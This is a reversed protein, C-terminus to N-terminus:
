ETWKSIFDLMKLIERQPDHWWNTSWIRYVKFGLQELQKQRYLDYAYAEESSHYRAGDCELAVVPKGEKKSKIAFDIRFGGCKYQTEIREKEIYDTLYDYVEQEFPSEVFSENTSIQPEACHKALLRLINERKENNNTEIAEAYALYAYFIGKGVNGKTRIEEVYKSYINKPISTFIVLYRKARTIIVNLLKHGKDYINIPGYQERFKADVNLGFTTSIIIIDKEDGQINELNKVFFGSKQIAEFKQVSTDSGTCHNHIEDLILNRQEINLTAIGISPYNEDKLPKLQHFLFDVIKQAESPNTGSEYLGDVRVFRIPKYNIPAPMPVLRSGYFAANSFDILFPHKSRYHFDLYSLSFDSSEAFKLLSESEALISSDDFIEKDPDDNNEDFGIASDSQFYNSPPMQHKDGSIIKQKGRLYAGYTDELRLQSAEDFIVIDFLGEKMPLISSCVVPNAFLVPFFDTFLAFDTAIIKRLSNKKSYQSNKRYNYMAKVNGKSTKFNQISNDQNIRWLTIIKDRQKTQLQMKLSALEDLLRDNQLFPGINGEYRALTGNLYWSKFCAQWDKGKAEILALVLRREKPTLSNLFHRWQYYDSFSDFSRLAKAIQDHYAVLNDAIQLYASRNNTDPFEFKLNNSGLHLHTLHEVARDIQGKRFKIVKYKELFISLFSEAVRNFVRNQNFAAGFNHSCRRIEQILAACFKVRNTLDDAIKNKLTSLYGSDFIQDNLINLPHDLTKIANFLYCGEQVVKSLRTFEQYNFEYEGSSLARTLINKSQVRDSKLYKGIIDKWTDDGLIKKLVARHKANLEIKIKDYTKNAERYEVERFGSFSSNRTDLIARVRDIVKKRDKSIDDIVICLDGLGLKCLNNYIVDLATKKECVILCKANSELANTIIATISQSKGTGPPGQIIKTKSKSLSNIIEEQSPDTEVSSITSTQYREIKLNEFEFSGYNDIISEIDKILSEKQTKYLGFVGSWCIWARDPTINEISERSPCPVLDLNFKSKNVKVGVQSLLLESIQLLEKSDILGDDLYDDNLGSITINANGALYSILVQNITIAYDEERRIIWENQVRSSKEVDLNWILLPAKIIQKPEKKDRKILLPYGFGFSKIGHELYTDVNEYDISNLKRAVVNLDKKQENNLSNLDIDSFSIRFTFSPRNLLYEYLFQNALGERVIDLRSVDLRTKYKGPLANLHLSRLNGISLQKRLKQLFEISPM